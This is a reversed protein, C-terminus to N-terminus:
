ILGEEELIRLHEEGPEVDQVAPHFADTEDDFDKEGPFETVEPFSCDGPVLPEIRTMFEAWMQAPFNGGQM